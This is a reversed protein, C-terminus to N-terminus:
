SRERSTPRDLHRVASTEARDTPIAPAFDATSNTLLREARVALLHIERDVDNGDLIFELADEDTYYRRIVQELDAASADALDLRRALAVIDSADKRRQAVLKTALLFEDTAYTIHLGPADSRQLAGEPLPPMWAGARTNLWDEPLRHQSAMARAEDVVAQDRTIADIDETRRPDDNSTVAIAAGGVVFISASIGRAKLRNDLESLLDVIEGARFENRADTM